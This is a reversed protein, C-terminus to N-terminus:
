NWKTSTSMSKSQSAGKVLTPAHQKNGLLGSVMTFNLVMM